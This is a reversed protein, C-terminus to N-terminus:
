SGLMAEAQANWRKWERSVMVLEVTDLSDLGLDRSFHASPIIKAEQEAIAATDKDDKPFKQAM